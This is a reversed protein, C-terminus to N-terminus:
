RGRVRRHETRLMVALIAVMVLHALVMAMAAGAVDFRWCLPAVIAFYVLTAAIRAKLPGDPRDLAYLMPPLPFAVIALLPVGIMVLLVPYVALFEAGFLLGILPKGAIVLVAVAILGFLAAMASGRLMLRWPHKTAVDMKVVEPYYAKALLDAPKQASDALSAAVRYIAASAPGLLGGVILRAVPGWAAMLSSTLNVQVAFPWANAMGVPKLTPRIGDRLGRRGLERWALFWLFLDGILDTAAWLIIFEGEEFWHM